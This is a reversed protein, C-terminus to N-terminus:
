FFKFFDKICKFIYIYMQFFPQVVSKVVVTQVFYQIYWYDHLLCPCLHPDKTCELKLEKGLKKMEFIPNCDLFSNIKQYPQLCPSPPFFIFAFLLICSVAYGHMTIIPQDTKLLSASGIDQITLRITLGFAIQGILTCM